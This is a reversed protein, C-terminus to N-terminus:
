LRSVPVLSIIAASRLPTILPSRSNQFLPSSNIVGRRSQILLPKAFLYYLYGRVCSGGKFRRLVGRRSPIIKSRRLFRGVLPKKNKREREVMHKSRIICFVDKIYNPSSCRGGAFGCLYQIFQINPTKLGINKPNHMIYVVTKYM